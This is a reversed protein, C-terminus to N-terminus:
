DNVIRMTDRAIVLEENTTAVITCVKSDETSIIADVGKTSDNINKDIKIGLYEMNSTIQERMHISNEGIGGTFILLDLGNMAAIYSGIYKKVKYAYVDLALKARKNGQMAANELDRMDSSIGSIGLVGSKKNVLDNAQKTDLNEKEMIFLLAGVDLDGCRTGMILGEVPTFGMSNDISVGRDIATISAGNGLHCSIIKLDNINKGIMNAAKEAVFKHSTGHFGYRRIEFNEYYEYPIGYIYAYDPMSQHFSTDFVAVQPLGPILKEVALIGKLNAPNHLPALQICNSIETLTDNNILVSNKFHEGGHAVRHGAAKIESLSSIVGVEKDLLLNIIIEIGATHNPIPTEYKIKDKGMPTHNVIGISQGIRELLGKALVNEDASMDFLQYKISSSGCNLVLIKM